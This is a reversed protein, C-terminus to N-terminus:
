RWTAAVHHAKDVHSQWAPAQTTPQQPTAHARACAPSLVHRARAHLPEAREPATRLCAHRGLRCEARPRAGMPAPALARAHARDRPQGQGRCPAVACPTGAQPPSRCSRRSHSFSLPSSLSFLTAFSVTSHFFSLRIADVALLPRRRAAGAGHAAEEEKRGDGGRSGKRRRRGGEGRGEEMRERREPPPPLSSGQHSPHRPLRWTDRNIAFLRIPNTSSPEPPPHHRALTQPAAGAIHAAPILRRSPCSPTAGM